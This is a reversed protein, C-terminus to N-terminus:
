PKPPPLTLSSILTSESPVQLRVVRPWDLLVRNKEELGLDHLEGQDFTMLGRDDPDFTYGLRTLAAWEQHTAGLGHLIEHMLTMTHLKTSSIRIIGDGMYAAEEDSAAHYDILIVFAQGALRYLPPITHVYVRSALLSTQATAPPVNDMKGYLTEVGNFQLTFHSGSLYRFGRNMDDVVAGLTQSSVPDVPNQGDSVLAPDAPVLKFFVIPVNQRRSWHTLSDPVAATFLPKGLPGQTNELAFLYQRTQQLAKVDAMFRVSEIGEREHMGLWQDLTRRAERYQGQALYAQVRCEFLRENLLFDTTQLSARHTRSLVEAYRGTKLLLELLKLDPEATLKRQALQQRYEQLAEEYRNSAILLTVLQDRITRSSPDRPFEYLCRRLGSIKDPLSLQQQAERVHLEASPLTTIFAALICVRLPAPQRM